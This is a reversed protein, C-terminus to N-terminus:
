NKFKSLCVELHKNGITIKRRHQEKKDKFYKSGDLFFSEFFEEIAYYSNGVRLVNMFVTKM